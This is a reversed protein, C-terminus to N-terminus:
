PWIGRCSLFRNELVGLMDPALAKPINMGLSGQYSLQYPLTAFCSVRTLNRPRSSRSSFPYSGVGTNKPKGQSEAPLSDVQLAPSGLKIGPNLPDGPSPIAVWELIRPSGQPSLPYFIQRCCPLALNFGLTPFIGQLLPHCGLETNKGPADGHLFSVPTSCDM